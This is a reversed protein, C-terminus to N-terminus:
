CVTYRSNAAAAARYLGAQNVPLAAHGRRSVFYHRQVGACSKM